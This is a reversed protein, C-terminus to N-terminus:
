HEIAAHGERYQELYGLADLEITLTALKEHVDPFRNLLEVPLDAAFMAAVLEAGASLAQKPEDNKPNTSLEM